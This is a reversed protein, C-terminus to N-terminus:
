LMAVDVFLFIVIVIVVIRIAVAQLLPVSCGWGVTSGTPREFMEVRFVVVVRLLRLMPMPAFHCPNLPGHQTIIVVVLTVRVEYM